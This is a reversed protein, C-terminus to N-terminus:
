ANGGKVKYGLKLMLESISTSEAVLIKLDETEIANIKSVNAM